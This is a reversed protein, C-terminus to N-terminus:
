YKCAMTTMLAKTSYEFIGGVHSRLIHPLLLFVQRSYWIHTWRDKTQNTITSCPNLCLSLRLMRWLQICPRNTRRYRVPCQPSCTNKKHVGFISSTPFVDDCLYLMFRPFIKASIDCRAIACSNVFLQLIALQSISLWDNLIITIWKTM